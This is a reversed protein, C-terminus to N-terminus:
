ANDLTAQTFVAIGDDVIMFILAFFVPAVLAFQVLPNGGSHRLFRSLLSPPRATGPTGITEAVSSVSRSRGRASARENKSDVSTMAMPAFGFVSFRDNFM